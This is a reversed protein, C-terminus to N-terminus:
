LETDIRLIVLLQKEKLTNLKMINVIYEIEASKETKLIAVVSYFNKINVLRIAENFSERYAEEFLEPLHSNLIELRNKGTLNRAKETVASILGSSNTIFGIEEDQLVNQLVDKEFKVDSYAEKLRENVNKLEEHLLKLEDEAKKRKTIDRFIARTSIFKGDKIQPNISGEVYIEKGSKSVFVTELNKYTAGESVNKFLNTCIDHHDERITDLFILTKRDNSTYGLLEEWARNM